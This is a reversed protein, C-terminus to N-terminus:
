THQTWAAQPPSRPTEPLSFAGRGGPSSGAVGLVEAMLKFNPYIDAEDQTEHWESERKGLYTHARNAKYFRDEWQVVMGLHQNNLLLVQAPASPIPPPPARPNRPAPRLLQPSQPTPAPRPTQPQSPSGCCCLWHSFGCLAAVFAAFGAAGSLLCRRFSSAALLCAAFGPALCFSARRAKIDLKEIFATALEQCNMLFSGDGDIDWVVRSPRGLKGDFAAAAGLASPLGFGMSGLGGSTVWRRPEAFPYWQAAFM